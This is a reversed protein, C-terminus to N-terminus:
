KAMAAVSLVSCIRSSPGFGNFGGLPPVDASSFSVTRVEHREAEKQRLTLSPDPKRRSILKAKPWRNPEPGSLGGGGLRARPPLADELTPTAEQPATPDPTDTTGDQARATGTLVAAGALALILFTMLYFTRQKVMQNRSYCLRESISFLKM